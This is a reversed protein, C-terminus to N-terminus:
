DIWVGKNLETERLWDLRVDNLFCDYVGKAFDPFTCDFSVWQKRKYRLTVEAFIGDRLFIRHAHDKTSALVLRSGNVYGPDINVKRSQGSESELSCTVLKWGALDGAGALGSFSLFTRYLVPSIDRYYDTHRFPFSESKREPEGWIESLRSISWELWEQDPHLIGAIRIVAPQM